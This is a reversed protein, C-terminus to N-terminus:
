VCMMPVCVPCRTSTQREGGGWVCVCFLAPSIVQLRQAVHQHVKVQARQGPLSQFGGGFTLFVLADALLFHGRGDLNQTFTIGTRTVGDPSRALTLEAGKELINERVCARRNQKREASNAM